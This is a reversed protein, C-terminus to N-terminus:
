SQAPFTCRIELGRGPAGRAEVAGGASTVVHKVIALGLGTGRTSRARDARYFREFLRPLDDESVGAGDDTVSVVAENATGRTSVTCTAGEGAYRIANSVLNELVVRLMRSRVPAAVGDELDTRLRVGAREARPALEALMELSVPQVPTSWLSVVEHGTELESLFLVDDILERMQDVESRARAAVEAPDADSLTLEDLIVLLRALPTRLEHSVSATFGARLEEYAVLDTSSELYVLTERRGAVEYTVELPERGGRSPMAEEPLPQGEALGGLSERARRSAALVRREEDLVVVLERSEEVLARSREAAARLLQLEVADSREPRSPRLWKM